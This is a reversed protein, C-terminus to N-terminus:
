FDSRHRVGCTLVTNALSSTQTPREYFITEAEWDVDSTADDDAGENVSSGGDEVSSDDVDVVDDFDSVGVVVAFGLVTMSSTTVVTLLEFEVGGLVSTTVDTNESDVGGDVDVAWSSTVLEPAPATVDDGEEM